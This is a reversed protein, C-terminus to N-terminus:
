FGCSPDLAERAERMALRRRSLKSRLIAAALSFAERRAESAARRAESTPLAMATM